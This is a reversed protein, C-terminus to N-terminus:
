PLLEAEKAAPLAAPTDLAPLPEQGIGPALPFRDSCKPCAVQDQAEVMITRAM